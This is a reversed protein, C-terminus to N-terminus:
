RTPSTARRLPRRSRIPSVVRGHGAPPPQSPVRTSGGSPRRSDGASCPRASGCRARSSPAARHCECPGCRGSRGGNSACARGVPLPTFVQAWFGVSVGSRLPTFVQVGVPGRGPQVGCAGCAAGKAAILAMQLRSPIREGVLGSGTSAGCARTPHHAELWCLPLDAQPEALRPSSLGPRLVHTGRVSVEVPPTKPHPVYLLLVCASGDPIVKNLWFLSLQM